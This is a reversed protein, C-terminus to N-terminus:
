PALYPHLRLPLPGTSGRVVLRAPLRAPAPPAEAPDRGLLDLASGALDEITSAITTLAPTLVRSLLVDDCGVLSFGGPVPVGAEALGALVGCAMLDDFVFAASAGTGALSGAAALGGDYSAPWAGLDVLDCGDKEAWARIARARQAAAWSRAPGRMMAVRRHGLLLLLEGSAHLADAHDFAVSPLSAVIRNVVVASTSGIAARLGADSSVPSAIVMADVQHRMTNILDIEREPQLEADLLLMGLDRDAAANQMARVLPPFFPNEIDPVILAVQQTRGTVLSRAARNPRYDVEGARRLVRDRVDPRVLEPRNFARSVTSPHLDLDAAISYITARRTM